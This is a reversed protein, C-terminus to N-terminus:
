HLAFISILFGAFLFCAIAWTKRDDERKDDALVLDAQLLSIGAFFLIMGTSFALESTNFTNWTISLYGLLRIFAGFLFPLLPVVVQLLIWAGSSPHPVKPSRDAPPDASIM